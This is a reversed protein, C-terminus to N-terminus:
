SEEEDEMESVQSPYLCIVTGHAPCWGEWEGDLRNAPHPNQLIVRCGEVSCRAPEPDWNSQSEPEPVPMYPESM